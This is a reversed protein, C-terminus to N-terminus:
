APTPPLLWLMVLTALVLLVVALAWHRPARWAREADSIRPAAQERSTM